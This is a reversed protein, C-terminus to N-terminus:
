LEIFKYVAEAFGGTKVTNQTVYSAVNEVEKYSGGIAVGVGANRIMEIDNMNDGVAMVEENHINLYHGLQKLATYKTVKKPVIDLYEYEQNIIKDRYQAYQKISIAMVENIQEIKNKIEQLDNEGAIVFKLISPNQMKIYDELSEVIEIQLQDKYLKYNRFAMYKLSQQVIMKTDTYIHAHLNSKNAIKLCDLAKENSIVKRSIEEGTRLNIIQTGNGFIGYTPNLTNCINKTMSYTKGTCIAFNIKSQNLQNIVKLDHNTIQNQNDMITGDLDSALLKIM